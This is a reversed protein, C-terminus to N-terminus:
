IELSQGASLYYLGNMHKKMFEFQETGTCHCTYYVAGFSALANACKELNEDLPLKSFHFGGVLVDPRFANVINEIGRHSCGSILIRRGNERILLYQEHDFREFVFGNETKVTLGGHLIDKIPSVPLEAFLTMAGGIDTAGSATILRPESMLSTDLGIYKETGNYHPEFAKETIYVSAKGNIKLFAELGGGHDYHGHSLVATDVASLDIGLKRANHAFADTQGMDFLLKMGNVEIYLSLGHEATIDERASTNEIM